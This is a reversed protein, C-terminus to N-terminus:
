VLKSIEDLNAIKLCEDMWEQATMAIREVELASAPIHFVVMNMGSHVSINATCALLSTRPYVEIKYVVHADPTSGYVTRTRGWSLLDLELYSHLREEM